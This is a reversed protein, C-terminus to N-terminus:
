TSQQAPSCASQTSINDISKVPHQFCVRRRTAPYWILFSCHYSVCGYLKEKKTACISRVITDLPNYRTSHNKTAKLSSCPDLKDDRSYKVKGSRFVTVKKAKRRNDRVLQAVLMILIDIATLASSPVGSM